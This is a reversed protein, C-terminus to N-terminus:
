SPFARPELPPNPALRTALLELLTARERGALPACPNALYKWIIAQIRWIKGLIGKATKHSKLPKCPFFLFFFTGGFKEIRPPESGRLESKPNRFIACRRCIVFCYGM